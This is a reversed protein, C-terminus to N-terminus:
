DYSVVKPAGAITPEAIVDSPLRPVPANRDNSLDARCDSCARTAAALLAKLRGCEMMVEGLRRDTDEARRREVAAARRAARLEGQLRLVLVAPDEHHRSQAESRRRYGLQEVSERTVRWEPGWPGPVKVPALEGRRARVRLTALSVEYQQAAERLSLLGDAQSEDDHAV